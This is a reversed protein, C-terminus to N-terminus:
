EAFEFSYLTASILEFRLRIRQGKLSRLDNGGRWTVIAGTTDASLPYCDHLDFGKEGLIGVRLSGGGANANVRLRGRTCVIPRTIIVGPKDKQQPAYGAFRDPRLYALGLGGSRWGTHPGDSGGYYLRLRDERLQPYAAAFICHSDFQGAPGRPILPTGPCIREWHLTDVSWSLECDVTDQQQHFIMVLGLYLGAYPFAILAYPQHDMDGRLVEAARTWNQFDTSETRGVIRQGDRWLRTIGVYRDLERSWFANNHTDGAAEIGLAQAPDSWHLGDASFAVGLNGSREGLKFFMKYRRDPDSDDAERYVGAGHVNRLVLNNRRNGEFEVLNLIPKTWRIGDESVAYCVGMERKRGSLADTYSVSRRKEPPTMSVAEDIIFPSYWCKYRAEAEDYIVNPYLNDFRVEWAEQPVFLPNGPEKEVQELALKVGESRAILTSELLLYKSRSSLAVERDPHEAATVQECSLAALLTVVAAILSASTVASAEWGCACARRRNTRSRIMAAM